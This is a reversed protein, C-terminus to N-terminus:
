QYHNTKIDNEAKELDKESSIEIFYQRCALCFEKNEQYRLKLLELLSSDISSYQKQFSIRNILWTNTFFTDTDQQKPKPNIEIVKGKEDLILHPLDAHYFEESKRGIHLFKTDRMRRFDDAKALNLRFYHHADFVFAYIDDIYEFAKNLMQTESLADKNEIYVLEMDLYNKGLISKLPPAESPEIFVIKRFLNEALFSLQYHLFMKGNLEKFLFDKKKDPNIIIIAQNTM